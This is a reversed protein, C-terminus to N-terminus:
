QKASIEGSGHVKDGSTTSKNEFRCKGSTMMIIRTIINRTINHYPIIIAAALCSRTATTKCDTTDFLSQTYDM